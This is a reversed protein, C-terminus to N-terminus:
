NLTMLRKVIPQNAEPFQFANLRTIEVWKLAQGELGKENGSFNEVLYFYLCVSKESYDFTIKQFFDASTIEIDLEEKLERKLAQEPLEKAELKGGPFEWYGGKHKNLPRKAILVRDNKRIIAAAVQVIQM